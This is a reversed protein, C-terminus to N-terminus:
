KLRSNVARYPTLGRRYRRSFPQLRVTRQGSLIGERRQEYLGRYAPAPSDTAVEPTNSVSSM